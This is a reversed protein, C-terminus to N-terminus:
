GFLTYNKEFFEEIQLLHFYKFPCIKSMISTSNIQIISDSIRIFHNNDTTCFDLFMENLEKWSYTIKSSNSNIISNIEPHLWFQSSPDNFIINEPTEICIDHLIANNQLTVRLESSVFCIHELCETILEPVYLVRSKFCEQLEHDLIILQSNGQDMLLKSRAVNEIASCLDQPCFYIPLWVENEELYEKLKSEPKFSWWVAYKKLLSKILPQM